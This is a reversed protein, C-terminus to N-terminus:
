TKSTDDWPFWSADYSYNEDQAAQQVSEVLRDFMLPLNTSVPNPVTAIAFRVGPM